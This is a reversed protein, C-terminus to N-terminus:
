FIKNKTENARTNWMAIFKRRADQITQPSPHHREKHSYNEYDLLDTIQRHMGVCCCIEFGYPDEAFSEFEVEEGCMPCPKLKEDQENM